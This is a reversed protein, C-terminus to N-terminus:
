TKCHMKYMYVMTCQEYKGGGNGEKTRVWSMDGKKGLLEGGVATDVSM